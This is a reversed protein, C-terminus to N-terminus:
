KLTLGETELYFIGVELHLQRAELNLGVVTCRVKLNLINTDEAVLTLQGVVLTLQGVVLTLQGGVLTLQGVVLTLQGVV